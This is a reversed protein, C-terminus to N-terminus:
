LSWLSLRTANTNCRGSNPAAGDVTHRRIVEATAILVEQALGVDAGDHLLREHAMGGIGHGLVVGVDPHLLLSCRLLVHDGEQVEPFRRWVGQLGGEQLTLKGEPPSRPPVM